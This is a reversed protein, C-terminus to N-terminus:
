DEVDDVDIQGTLRRRIHSWSMGTALLLSLVVLSLWTLAGTSEMSLLGVDVLLWIVCAFLAGGLSIGLWGMSLFTARLFIIWLILLVLGLVAPLPGFTFGESLLWGVYSYPTPNYTGLVLILAFIWRVLFNDAGFSNAM